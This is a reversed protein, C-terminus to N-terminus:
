FGKIKVFHDDCISFTIQIEEFFDEKMYSTLREFKILRCILNEGRLTANYLKGLTSSEKRDVKHAFNPTFQNLIEFEKTDYIVIEKTKRVYYKNGIKSFKRSSM